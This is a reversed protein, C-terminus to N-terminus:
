SHKEYSGENDELYKRRLAKEVLPTTYKTVDGGYSAIERVLSSSIPMSRPRTVLFVTEIEPAMDMNALAMQFEREFDTIARMGRIIVKVGNRKAYNVLLENFTDVKVNDLEESDGRLSEVVFKVREEETFTQEKEPNKGIAIIVEDFLSSARKIIDLHGYTIPDFSGPYVARM